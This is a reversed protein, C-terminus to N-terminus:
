HCAPTARHSPIRIEPTSMSNNGEVEEALPVPQTKAGVCAVSECACVLHTTTTVDRVLGLSCVCHVVNPQAVFVRTGWLCSCFSALRRARPFLCQAVCLYM